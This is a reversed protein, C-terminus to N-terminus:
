SAKRLARDIDSYLDFHDRELSIGSAIEKTEYEDLVHWSVVPLSSKAEVTVIVYRVDARNYPFSHVVFGNANCAEMFAHVSDFGNISAPGKKYNPPKAIPMPKVMRIKNM